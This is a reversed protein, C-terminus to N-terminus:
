CVHARPKLGREDAWAAVWGVVAASRRAWPFGLVLVSGDGCGAALGGDATVCCCYLETSATVVGVCPRAAVDWVRVTKDWSVSALRRDRLQTLGCVVKTHGRLEDVAERRRWDWLRVVGDSHGSALTGGSM